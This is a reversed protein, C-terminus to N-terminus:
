KGKHQGVFLIITCISKKQNIDLLCSKKKFSGGGGLFFGLELFCINVAVLSHGLSVPAKSIPLTQRQTNPRPRAREQRCTRPLNRGPPESCWSPWAAARKRQDIPWRPGHPFFLARKFVRVRSLSSSTLSSKQFPKLAASTMDSRSIFHLRQSMTNASSM